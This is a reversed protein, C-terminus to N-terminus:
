RVRRREKASLAFNIFKSVQYQGFLWHFGSLAVLLAHCSSALILRPANPRRGTEAVLLHYLRRKRGLNVFHLHLRRSLLQSLITRKRVLSLVDEVKLPLKGLHLLSEFGDLLTM